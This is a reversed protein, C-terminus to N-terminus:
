PTDLQGLLWNDCAYSDGAMCAKQYLKQAAAPDSETTDDGSAVISALSACSGAMGLDCSRTYHAKAKAPDHYPKDPEFSFLGAADACASASGLECGRAYTKAALAKDERGGDGSALMAAQSSCAFALGLECAKGYATRAQGEDRPGGDGQNAMGALMYCSRAEKKACNALFQARAKEAMDYQGKYFLGLRWCSDLTGAKCDASLKTEDVGGSMAMMESTEASEMAMEADNQAAAPVAMGLMLFATVAKVVSRM